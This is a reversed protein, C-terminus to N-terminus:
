QHLGASNTPTYTQAPVGQNLFEEEHGLQLSLTMVDADAQLISFDFPGLEVTDPSGALIVELLCRPPDGNLTRVQRAVARDVNDIEITVNGDAEETDDPLQAEFSCPRYAGALRIVTETNNVIRIPELQAHTITLCALWVEATDEALISQAASASLIRPM